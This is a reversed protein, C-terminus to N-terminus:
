KQKRTTARCFREPCEQGFFKGWGALLKRKRRAPLLRSIRAAPRALRAIEPPHTNRFAPGPLGLASSQERGDRLARRDQYAIASASPQPLPFLASIRPLANERSASHAPPRSARTGTRSYM